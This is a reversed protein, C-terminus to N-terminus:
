LEGTLLAHARPRGVDLPGTRLRLLLRGTAPVLLLLVEEGSPRSAMVRPMGDAPALVHWGDRSLAEAAEQVRTTTAVPDLGERALAAERRVVERASGPLWRGAPAPVEDDVLARWWGRAVEDTETAAAEVDAVPRAPQDRPVAPADAPLLVIDVDPHRRRVVSWFPDPGIPAHTM